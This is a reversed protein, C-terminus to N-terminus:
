VIQFAKDWSQFHMQWRPNRSDTATGPANKVPAFEEERFTELIAEVSRILM